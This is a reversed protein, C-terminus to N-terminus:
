TSSGDLTQIHQLLEDCFWPTRHKERVVEVEKELLSPCIASGAKLVGLIAMQINSDPDDLHVLLGRYLFELHGRYTTRDYDPPVRQFWTTLAQAAAGRVDDSADDLRKLLEPYVTNLTEADLQDTCLLLISGIIQCAMQRTMKSDEDLAAVVQAMLDKRVFLLQAPSLVESHLLAWLCSIAVTRIAAATRGAHWLLNPLVADTLFAELHDCSHGQSDWTDGAKLLLKSVVTFLKLRMEPDKSPHLCDTLIPMMLDLAEGIVPGSQLLLTEFQLREVSYSTWRQHGVSLWAMLEAMHRRYLDALGNLGQLRSLLGQVEVVKDNLQPDSTLAQITLLVKLLQLSIEGVDTGCQTVLTQVCSLLQELFALKESAQCVDPHALADALTPRHPALLSGPCGKIVSALVMLHTPSPAKQLSTLILKLFVEPSVFTGILEASKLCNQVVQLDEDSCARYLTSLLLEMHQTIHDEAHLLFVGLLQSSKIRTGAVWDTIDRSIAPLIKSLNRFVLERCGLNPRDVGVPYHPVPSVLFDLKDKLDDENEQQWQLGVRSWYDLALHRIEPIEDNLSSLLLPILKHFYSYRDRLKLLWSGVVNTVAQRVQPADDFLRQALHSIVDDVSKGSGCQIVTGTAMIVAVRVRSHQHSITQMLPKILSESQMHFHEPICEAYSAACRCSEKKVDPFPDVIGRQLIRVMDDLYPSLKKGCVEVTLTVLELLALRVEEAPEVIEPGGLRQVLAPLLYPLVEEPRHASRIFHRLVETALERCREMPDLLSRLVPKLLSSLLLQLVGGPLGREVVERRIGELARKRVSKNEDSLCNLHRAVAQLVEAAAHEDGQEAAAMASTAIVVSNCTQLTGSITANLDKM